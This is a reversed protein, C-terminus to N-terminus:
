PKVPCPLDEEEPQELRAADDASMPCFPCEGPGLCDGNEHHELEADRNAQEEEIEHKRTTM